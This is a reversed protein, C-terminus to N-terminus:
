GRFSRLGRGYEMLDAAPATGMERLRELLRLVFFILSEDPTSVQVPNAGGKRAPSPTARATDFTCPGFRAPTSPAPNQSKARTSSADSPLRKKDRRIQARSLRRQHRNLNQREVVPQSRNALLEFLIPRPAYRM